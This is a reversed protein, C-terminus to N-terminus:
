IKLSVSLYVTTSFKALMNLCSGSVRLICFSVLQAPDGKANKLQRLQFLRTAGKKIVNEIHTNWTLNNSIILGLLKM